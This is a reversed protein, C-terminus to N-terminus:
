IETLVYIIRMYKEPKGRDRWSIEWYAVKILGCGSEKSEM